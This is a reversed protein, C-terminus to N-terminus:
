FLDALLDDGGAHLDEYTYKNVLVKQLYAEYDFRGEEKIVDELKPKTAPNKPVFITCCDEFPLTSIEFTGYEKALIIIESKDMTILPRLILKNVTNDSVYMGEITQSAVQGLSEGTIIVKSKIKDCADSAVRLMMRRLITVEYKDMCEQHIALQLDALNCDYFKIDRDFKHLVKVLDKVKGLAEDSTYPPSSFHICSVKLGRKMAMIAAVPSDIGGSLMVVAKGATGIPLGGMGMIKKHFVYANDKQIEINIVQKPTKVDVKMGVLGDNSKLIFGGVFRSIEQSTYDFNKNSRKTEVKFVPNETDFNKNAVAKIEELDIACVDAISFSMIGPIIKIVETIEDFKSLDTIEIYIRNRDKRFNLDYDRLQSVINNYLIREFEKRNKGKLTLEGFRILIVKM